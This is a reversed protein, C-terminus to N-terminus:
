SYGPFMIVSDPVQSDLWTETVAVIDPPHPRCELITRQFDPLKNALSRANLQLLRLQRSCKAGPTSQDQIPAALRSLRAHASTSVEPWSNAKCSSAQTGSCSSSSPSSSSGPSPKVDGHRLLCAARLLLFLYLVTLLFSGARPRSRAFQYCLRRRGGGAMACWRGIASRYQETSVGGWGM